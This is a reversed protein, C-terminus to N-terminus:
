KWWCVKEGIGPCMTKLPLCIFYNRVNNTDNPPRKDTSFAYGALSHEFFKLCICRLLRALFLLNNPRFRVFHTCVKSPRPVWCSLNMWRGQVKKAFGNFVVRLMSRTSQGKFVWNHPIDLPSTKWRIRPLSKLIEVFENIFTGYRERLEPNADGSWHALHTKGAHVKWRVRLIWTWALCILNVCPTLNINSMLLIVPNAICTVM